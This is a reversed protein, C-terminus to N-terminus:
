PSARPGLQVVQPRPRQALGHRVNQRHLGSRTCTRCPSSAAASCRILRQFDRDPDTGQASVPVERGSRRLDEGFIPWTTPWPPENKPDFRILFHDTKLTEYKKLHNLVRLINAVRVNFNDAKFAKELLPRGKRWDWACTCNASVTPGDPVDSTIGGSEQLVERRRRLLPPGGVTRGDYYFFAPKPDNKEVEKTVAAFDETKQLLKFAAIRGLTGENRPNVTGAGARETGCCPRRPWTSM